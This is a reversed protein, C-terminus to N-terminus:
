RYHCGEALKEYDIEYLNLYKIIGKPTLDYKESIYKIFDVKNDAIVSVSVIKLERAALWAPSKYFNHLVKPKKM